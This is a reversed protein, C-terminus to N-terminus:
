KKKKTKRWIPDRRTVLEWVTEICGIPIQDVDRENTDYIGQHQLFLTTTDQGIVVGRIWGLPAPNLPEAEDHWRAESCWDRADVLVAMGKRLKKM